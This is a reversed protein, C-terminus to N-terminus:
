TSKVSNLIRKIMPVAPTNDFPVPQTAFLFQQAAELNLSASQIMDETIIQESDYRDLLNAYTLDGSFASSHSQNHIPYDIPPYM